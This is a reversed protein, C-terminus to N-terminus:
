VEQNESANVAREAGWARLRELTESNTKAYPIMQSFREVLVQSSWEAEPCLLQDEALSKVAYEIDAYTFGASAAVLEAMVEEPPRWGLSRTCYQTLAARREKETPLDVFFIESFRGKRFLEAPLASIDNATAVLFIKSDSEQLWFLFQGLVRQGVDNGGDSVSLAKEIEDIWVICPSVNDLFQLANKMKKESEGVFKDYVTGIDFRFLPLQWVSAIMKASLSKGCGPVGVLLIGRPPQLDWAKLTGTPAFFIKQKKRLWQKLNELGSTSLNESVHVSQISPVPAYLRSKQSVLQMLDGKRLGNHEVLTSSLINDIQTESFGRLLAAAREIEEGGWEIPYRYMYNSVFKEIQIRREDLDPYDLKVLMGFQALRPWVPDPSIIILTCSAEQALYVLNLLEKAYSSDEGIRRSDGLAFTAGRKRKFEEAVYPLPDRNVDVCAGNRSLSRVQRADTYYSIDISLEGAIWRLLKEARAREITDIIILPVRAIIYNQVETKTQALNSM